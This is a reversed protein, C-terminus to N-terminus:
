LGLPTVNGIADGALFVMLAPGFPLRTGAPTCLRRAATRLVFRLGASALIPVLGWGVRQIGDIIEGVGARRVAYIFLVLGGLAGAIPRIRHPSAILSPVPVPQ